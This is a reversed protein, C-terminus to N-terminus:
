VIKLLFPLHKLIVAADGEISARLFVLRTESHLFSSSSSSLISKCRLHRNDKEEDNKEHGDEDNLHGCHFFVVGLFSASFIPEKWCFFKQWPGDELQQMSKFFVGKPKLSEENNAEETERKKHGDEKKSKKKVSKSIALRLFLSILLVFFMFIKLPLKPLHCSLFM